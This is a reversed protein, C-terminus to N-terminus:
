RSYMWSIYESTSSFSKDIYSSFVRYVRVDSGMQPKWYNLWNNIETSIDKSTLDGYLDETYYDGAPDLITLEDGTVPFQVGVHALTSSTIWLCEVSYKEGNYSRIMSALLIAMDECDGKKIDLTENPFQWMEDSYEVEGAPTSPIIPFLGDYRYEINNVVWDYMKKVDNWYENWDSPNSWDGTVSLVTNKVSTDNPTIFDTIDLHLVRQNILRRLNAYDSYYSDFSSQLINYDTQLSHYSSNLSNYDTQLSSYNSKLSAFSTQIKSYNSQLSDYDSQLTRHHAQLSDYDGQLTSHESQLASYQNTLSKHNANLTNFSSNLSLYLFGQVVIIAVLVITIVHWKSLRFKRKEPQPTIIPSKEIGEEYEM